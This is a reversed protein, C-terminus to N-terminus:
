SMMMGGQGGGFGAGGMGGQMGGQEQNQEFVLHSFTEGERENGVLWELDEEDSKLRSMLGNGPKPYPPSPPPSDDEEEDDHSQQQQQGNQGNNQPTSNNTFTNDVEGPADADNNNSNTNYSSQPAQSQNPTYSQYQGFGSPATPGASRPRPTSSNQRSMAANSMPLTSGPPVKRIYNLQGSPNADARSFLGQAASPPFPQQRHINTRRDDIRGNLYRSSSTSLPTIPISPFMAKASILLDVLHYHPM